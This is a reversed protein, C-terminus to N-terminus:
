RPSAVISAANYLLNEGGM